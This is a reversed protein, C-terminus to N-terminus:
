ARVSVAAAGGCGGCRGPPQRCRRWCPARSRRPRAAASHRGVAPRARGARRTQVGWLCTRRASPAPPPSLRRRRRCRIIRAICPHPLGGGTGESSMLRVAEIAAEGCQGRREEGRRRAQLCAGDVSLGVLTVCVSHVTLAAAAPRASAAGRRWCTRADATPAARRCSCPRTASATAAGRGPAPQTRTTLWSASSWGPAAPGAPLCAPAPPRAASCPATSDLPWCRHAILPCPPLCAPLCVAPWLPRRCAWRTAGQGLLMRMRRHVEAAAAADAAMNRAPLDSFFADADPGFLLCDVQATADEVLLRM